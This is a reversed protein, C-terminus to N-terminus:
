IKRGSIVKEIEELDKTVQKLKKEYKKRLEIRKLVDKSNESSVQGIYKFNVKSGQRFVLYLYDQDRRKKISVCGRPLSAIESSYKKSLAKLRKREEHLVGKLYGMAIGIM